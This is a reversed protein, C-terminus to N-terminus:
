GGGMKFVYIVATLLLSLATWLGAIHVAQVKVKGNTLLAQKEIRVCRDNTEMVVKYIDANTVKIFTDDNEM